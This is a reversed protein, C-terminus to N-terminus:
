FVFLCLYVFVGGRIFKIKKKNAGLLGGGLAKLFACPNAPCDCRQPKRGQRM